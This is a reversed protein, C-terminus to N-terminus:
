LCARCMAFRHWCTRESFAAPQCDCVETVGAHKWPLGPRDDAEVRTSSFCSTTSGVGYRVYLFAACFGVYLLQELAQRSVNSCGSFFWCVLCGVTDAVGRM